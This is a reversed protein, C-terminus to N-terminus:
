RAVARRTVTRWAQEAALRAPSLVATEPAHWARIVAQDDSDASVIAAQRCRAVATDAEPAAAQQKTRMSTDQNPCAFVKRLCRIQGIDRPSFVAYGIIRGPV